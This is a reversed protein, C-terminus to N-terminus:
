CIFNCHSRWLLQCSLFLVRPLLTRAQPSQPSKQATFTHTSQISPISQPVRTNIMSSLILSIKHYLHKHYKSLTSCLLELNLKNGPFICLNVGTCTVCYIPQSHHRGTNRYQQIFMYGYLHINEVRKLTRDTQLAQVRDCVTGAVTGSKKLSQQHPATGGARHGTADNSDVVRFDRRRPLIFTFLCIKVHCCSCIM